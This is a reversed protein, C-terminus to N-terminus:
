GAGFPIGVRAPLADTPILCEVERRGGEPTQGIRIPRLRYGKADCRARSSGNSVRRGPDVTQDLRKSTGVIAIGVVQACPVTSSRLESKADADRRQLELAGPTHQEPPM